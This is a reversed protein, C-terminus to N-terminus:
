GRGGGKPRASEKEVFAAFQEKFRPRDFSLVSERIKEPQFDEEHAEFFRVAEVLAAPEQVPM